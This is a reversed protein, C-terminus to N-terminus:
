AWRRARQASLLDWVSDGICACDRINVGLRHAGALFADPEPKACQVDGRTVVPDDPGVGLMELAHKAKEPRSSTVIAWRLKLRSLEALLERAGPLLKVEAMRRGYAEGHREEFRKVEEENVDRGSERLIARVLLAGSMGIRRHIRWAPLELDGKRFAEQWALVHLYVSDVLTGDLDLLFALGGGEESERAANEKANSSPM